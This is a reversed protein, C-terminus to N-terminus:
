GSADGAEEKSDTADFVRGRRTAAASLDHVVADASPTEDDGDIWEFRIWRSDRTRGREMRLGVQPFDRDLRTLLGGIDSPTNPWRHRRQEPTSYELLETRLETATGQWTGLRRRQRDEMMEVVAAGFPNSLIVSEGAEGLAQRYVADGRRGAEEFLISEVILLVRHFDVMRLWGDAPPEVEENRLVHLVHSVMAFIGGQIIPRWEEFTKRLEEKSRFSEIRELKIPLQRDVFDGRLAGPDIATILLRVMSEYVKIGSDTYLERKAMGDGTVARCLTDQLTPTMWSLNDLVVVRSQSTVEMWDDPKATVLPGPDTLDKLIEATTTKGSGQHGTIVVAPAPVDLFTTVLWAVVLSRHAETIPLVEWLHQLDDVHGVRHGTPPIAMERGLPTRLFPSSGWAKLAYPAVDFTLVGKGDSREITVPPTDFASPWIHVTQADDEGHPRGLDVIIGDDHHHVRVSVREPTQMQARARLTALVSDVEAKTLYRRVLRVTDAGDSKAAAKQRERHSVAWDEYCRRVLAEAAGGTGLDLLPRADFHQLFTRGDLGHLLDGLDGVREIVISVHDEIVEVDDDALSSTPPAELAAAAPM